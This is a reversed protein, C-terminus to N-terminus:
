GQNSRQSENKTQNSESGQYQLIPTRKKRM